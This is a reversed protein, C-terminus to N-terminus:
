FRWESLPDMGMFFTLFGQELLVSLLACCEQKTKQLDQTPIKTRSSM